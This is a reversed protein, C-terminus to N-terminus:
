ADVEVSTSQESQVVYSQNSALVIDQDGVTLLLRKATGHQGRWTFTLVEIITGEPLEVGSERGRCEQYIM